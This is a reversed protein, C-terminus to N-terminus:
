DVVKITSYDDSRKMLEYQRKITEVNKQAIHNKEYDCLKFLFKVKPKDQSIPTISTVSNSIATLFIHNSFDYNLQIAEWPVKSAKDVKFGNDEYYTSPDRPHLKIMINEKGVKEAIKKVLSREGIPEGGEFDAISSFFIYKPYALNQININFVEKLFNGIIIYDKDLPPILVTSLDGNYFEPHLCYFYQVKERINSKNQIKRIIDAMRYPVSDLWETRYSTLGEEFRCVEINKNKSYLYYFLARLEQRDNYFFLKDALIDEDLPNYSILSSLMTMKRGSITKLLFVKNFFGTKRIEGIIHEVNPLLDTLCLIIDDMKLIKLKLQTAVILQYYTYVVIVVKKM